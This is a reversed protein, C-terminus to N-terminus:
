GTCTNRANDRVGTAIHMIPGVKPWDQAVISSAQNELTALGSLAHLLLILLPAISFGLSFRAATTLTTM